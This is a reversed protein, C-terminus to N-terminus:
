KKAGELKVVFIRLNGSVKATMIAKLRYQAVDNTQAVRFKGQYFALDSDIATNATMYGTVGTDTVIYDTGEVELETAMELSGEFGALFPTELGFGFLHETDSLGPFARSDRTLFGDVRKDALAFTKAGTDANVGSIMMPTGIPYPTSPLIGSITQGISRRIQHLLSPM